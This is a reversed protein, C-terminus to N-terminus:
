LALILPLHFLQSNTHSAHISKGLRKNTQKNTQKYTQKNTQFSTAWFKLGIFWSAVRILNIWKNDFSLSLFTILHLQYYYQLIQRIREITDLADIM